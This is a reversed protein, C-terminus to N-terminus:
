LTEPIILKDIVHIIGNSAQMDKHIITAENNIYTRGKLNTIFLRNPSDQTLMFISPSYELIDSTIKRNLTSSKVIHRASSDDMNIFLNEAEKGLMQDSPVFLTFNAQQKGYLDALNSINLMHRMYTMDPHKDIIDMISNPCYAKKPLSGRLDPIDFMHTVNYSQTYPGNSTM